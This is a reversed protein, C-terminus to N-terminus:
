QCKFLKCYRVRDFAKSADLFLMHVNTKNFNYYNITENIVHICQTTSVGENFGFLVAIEGKIYVRASDGKIYVELIISVGGSAKLSIFSMIWFKIHSHLFQGFYRLLFYQDLHGSDKAM